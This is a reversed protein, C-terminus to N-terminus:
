PKAGFVKESFQDNLSKFRKSYKESIEAMAPSRFADEVPTSSNPHVAYKPHKGSIIQQVTDYMEKVMKNNEKTYQLNYLMVNPGQATPKLAVNNYVEIEGNRITGPNVNNLAQQAVTVRSAQQNLFDLFPKEKTPELRGILFAKVPAKLNGYLGGINFGFGEEAGNLTGGTIGGYQALPATVKHALASNKTLTGIMSDLASQNEEFSKTNGAAELNKLRALSIAEREQDSKGQNAAVDKQTYLPSFNVQRSDLYVRESPEEKATQAAANSGSGAIIPAGIEPPTINKDHMQKNLDGITNMIQTKTKVDAGSSVADYLNQYAKIYQNSLAGDPGSSKPSTSLVNVRMKPINSAQSVDAKTQNAVPPAVEPKGTDVPPPKASSDLQPIVASASKDALVPENKGEPLVSNYGSGIRLLTPKAITIGQSRGLQANNVDIDYQKILNENHKNTIDQERQSAELISKAATGTKADLMTLQGVIEPRLLQHAGAPLPMQGSLMKQADEPPVGLANSFIDAAKKRQGMSVKSSALQARLQAIPMEQARQQELKEGMVENASGLSAMFGGLQPKAFAAAIKWYNPQSYRNQLATLSQQLALQYEDMDSPEAMFPSPQEGFASLGSQRPAENAM